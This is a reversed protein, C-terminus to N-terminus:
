RSRHDNGSHSSRICPANNNSPVPVGCLAAPNPATLRGNLQLTGERQKRRREMIARAEDMVYGSEERDKLVMSHEGYLEHAKEIADDPDIGTHELITAIDETDRKRGAAIKMALLYDPSATTISVAGSRYVVGPDDGEPAFMKANDNLWDRSVKFEDAVLASEELVADKPKFFADVDVTVRRDDYELAIAAGGVIYIDAAISREQLRESLRALMAEILEFNLENDKQIRNNM